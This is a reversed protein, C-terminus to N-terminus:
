KKKINDPSIWRDWEADYDDFHVFHLCSFKKTVKASYWKGDELVKVASKLPFDKKCSFPKLRSAEVWDTEDNTYSYFRINYKNETNAAMIFGLYDEGDYNALVHEGIRNNKRLPVNSTMVWNKMSEPVFYAAKQGEVIAMEEDIYKSVESLTIQQDANTDIFNKGQLAYLLANSFTWNGTSEDTPVVSNLAVYNKNPYKQVEKALGGSNCCDAIFFATNGAFNKNASKVIEEVSWEAGKYSAFCVKEADNKYGHGCYYFFLIDDKQAKKLFNEYSERITATNAQKDKIYIIQNAPIQNKQFFKYIEADVRAKKDFSAFSNSDEWELVGVMFVWTRTFSTKTQAFSNYFQFLILFSLFFTKKM